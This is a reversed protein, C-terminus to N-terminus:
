FMERSNSSRSRCAWVFESIRYTGKERSVPPQLKEEIGRDGFGGPVLIGQADGLLTEVTNETVEEAEVWEIQVRCGNEYGGHRLAEAVSLYADHLKIYKGVIAIKVCKNRAKIRKVMEEWEAM